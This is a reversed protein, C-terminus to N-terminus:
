SKNKFICFFTTVFNANNLLIYCKLFFFHLLAKWYFWWSAHSFITCFDVYYSNYCQVGVTSQSWHAKRRGGMWVPIFSFLKLFFISSLLVMFQVLNCIPVVDPNGSKERNMIGVGSFRVLHICFTGFPWLIDGIDTIYDLHGYFLCKGIQPGKFKAWIPSKPKFIFWRAVRSLM